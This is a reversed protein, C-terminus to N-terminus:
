LWEIRRNLLITAETAKDVVILDFKVKQSICGLKRIHKDILKNEENNIFLEKNFRVKDRKIVCNKIRKLKM